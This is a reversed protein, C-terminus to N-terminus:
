QNSFRGLHHLLHFALVAAGGAKLLDFGIFPFFGVQLTAYFSLPKGLLFNMSWWLYFLGPLYLIVVAGFSLLVMKRLSHTKERRFLFSLFPASILFGLLFGFTPNFLYALGGFPPSAFVPFGALGLCIYGLLSFFAERPSLVFGSMIVLFPLFSFPVIGSSFRFFLAFVVYLAIFLACRVLLRSSIKM